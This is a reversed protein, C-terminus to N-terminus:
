SVRSLAGARAAALAARAGLMSPEGLVPWEKYIVHIDHSAQLERLMEALVKCYPCRYDFFEVIKVTAEPNGSATGRDSRWLATCFAADMAGSILQTGKRCRRWRRTM